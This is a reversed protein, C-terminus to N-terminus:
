QTQGPINIESSNGTADIGRWQCASDQNVIQLYLDAIHSCDTEGTEYLLNGDKIAAIIDNPTKVTGVDLGLLRILESNSKERNRNHLIADRKLKKGQIELEVIRQILQGNEDTTGEIISQVILIREKLIDNEIQIKEITFRLSQLNKAMGSERLLLGDMDSKLEVLQRNLKRNDEAILYGDVFVMAVLAVSAIKLFNVLKM